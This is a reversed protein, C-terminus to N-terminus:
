YCEYFIKHINNIQISDNKKNMCSNSRALKIILFLKNFLNYKIILNM